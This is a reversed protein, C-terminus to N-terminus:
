SSTLFENPLETAVTVPSTTLITLPLTTMTRKKKHIFFLLSSELVMSVIIVVDTHYRTNVVVVIDTVGQGQYRQFASSRPKRRTNNTQPTASVLKNILFGEFNSVQTQTSNKVSDDFFPYPSLCVYISEYSVYRTITNKRRDKAPTHFNIKLGNSDRPYKFKAPIM